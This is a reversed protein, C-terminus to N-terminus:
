SVLQLERNELSPKSVLSMLIEKVAQAQPVAFRTCVYEAVAAPEDFAHHDAGDLWEGRQV